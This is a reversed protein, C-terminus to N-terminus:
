QFYVGVQVTAGYSLLGYESRLGLTSVAEQLAPSTADAGRLASPDPARGIPVFAGARLIVSQEFWYELFPVLEASPDQLNVLSLLQLTLLENFAYSAAVGAYHRGAGFIEGRQARPSSLAALYGSPDRAGFGNFYYEASLVMKETPKLEAGAVARLAREGGEGWTYAAEGHVGLPGIDGSFDAGAVLDKVYKAGSLSLDYGFLNVQARVAGGNEELAKRPLWLVELQATKALPATVRVADIGRRVERDIETPSFPSLLDTPNWFRGTGWSLVQRGVILDAFKMSLRASLRDLNQDVRLGPGSYLAAPLDVLRRRSGDGDATFAGTLSAGGTFAPHSAVLAGLQYAVDFELLEKVNATGELRVVHGTSGGAGPLALGPEGLIRALEATEVVLGPALRVGTGLAKYFAKGQIESSGDQSKWLTGAWAAGACAWALLAAARV